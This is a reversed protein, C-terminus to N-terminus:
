APDVGLRLNAIWLGVLPAPLAAASSRGGLLIGVGVAIARLILRQVGQMLAWRPIPALGLEFEICYVVATEAQPAATEISALGQIDKTGLM